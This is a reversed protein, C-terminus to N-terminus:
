RVTDALRATGCIVPDIRAVFKAGLEVEFNRLFTISKRAVLEANYGTQVKAGLAVLGSNGESYGSFPYYLKIIDHQCPVAVPDKKWYRVYDIEFTDPFVTSSNPANIGSQINMNLILQM